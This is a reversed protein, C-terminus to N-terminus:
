AHVNRRGVDQAVCVKFDFAQPELRVDDLGNGSSQDPFTANSRPHTHEVDAAAGAVHGHQQGLCDAVGAADNCEIAFWAHDFYRLGSSKRGSMLLNFEHDGRVFCKRLAGHEISRDSAVNQVVLRIGDGRDPSRRPRDTMATDDREVFRCAIDAPVCERGDIEICRRFM